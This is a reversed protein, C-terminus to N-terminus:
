ICFSDNKDDKENTESKIEYFSPDSMKEKSDLSVESENDYNDEFVIEVKDDEERHEELTQIPKIQGDEIIMNRDVEVQNGQDFKDDYHPDIAKTLRRHLNTRFEESDLKNYWQKMKGHLQNSRHNFAEKNTLTKKTEKLFGVTGDKVKNMNERTVVKKIAEGTKKTTEVTKEKVQKQFEPDMVKQKTKFALEKTKAIASNWFSKTAEILENRTNDYQPPQEQETEEEVTQEQNVNVIHEEKHDNIPIEEIGSNM